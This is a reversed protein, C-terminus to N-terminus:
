GFTFGLYGRFMTGTGAIMGQVESFGKAPASAKLSAAKLFAAIKKANEESQEPDWSIMEDLIAKGDKIESLVFMISEDEDIYLSDGGDSFLAACKMANDSLRIHPTDALFEERMSNYEGPSVKRFAPVNEQANAAEVEIMTTFFRSEYGLPKYFKILSPEAPSLLSVAGNRVAIDRAYETIVSGYGKGRESRLTCIAYSVFAPYVEDENVADPDPEVFDPHGSNNKCKANECTYRNPCPRKAPIVLEGMYFQTLAAAAPSGGAALVYNVLDDGFCAEFEAIFEPTDDFAEKRLAYFAEKEASGASNIDLRHIDINSM